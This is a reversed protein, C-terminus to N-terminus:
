TLVLCGCTDSMPRPSPSPIPPVQPARPPVLSCTAAFSAGGSLPMPAAVPDLPHRRRRRRRPLTWPLESSSSLSLSLSLDLLALFADIKHPDSPEYPTPPIGFQCGVRGLILCLMRHATRGHSAETKTGSRRTEALPAPSRAYFSVWPM